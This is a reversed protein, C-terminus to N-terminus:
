PTLNRYSTLTQRLADVAWRLSRGNDPNNYEATVEAAARALGAAIDARIYEQANANPHKLDREDCVILGDEYWSQDFDQTYSMAIHLRDPMTM